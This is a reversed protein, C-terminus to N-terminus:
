RTAKIWVKFNIIYANIIKNSVYEIFRKQQTGSKRRHYNFKNEQQCYM